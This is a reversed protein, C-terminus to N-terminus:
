IGINDSVGGSGTPSLGTEAETGSEVRGGPRRVTADMCAYQAFAPNPWIKLEKEDFLVVHEKFSSLIQGM